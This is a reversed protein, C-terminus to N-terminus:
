FGQLDPPPVTGTSRSSNLPTTPDKGAPTATTV